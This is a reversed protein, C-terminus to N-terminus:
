KQNGLFKHGNYGHIIAYKRKPMNIKNKNKNEVIEVKKEDHNHNINTSNTNGLDVIEIKNEM